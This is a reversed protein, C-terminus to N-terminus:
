ASKVMSSIMALMTPRSILSFNGFTTQGRPPFTNSTLFKFAPLSTRSMLKESYAPSITPIAPSMPAPRVSVVRAINPTSGLCLPWSKRSPFSIVMLPGISAM